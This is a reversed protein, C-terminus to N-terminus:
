DNNYTGKFLEQFATPQGYQGNMDLKESFNYAVQHSPPETLIDRQIYEILKPDDQLLEPIAICVQLATFLLAVKSIKM